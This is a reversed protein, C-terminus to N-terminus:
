RFGVHTAKNSSTQNDHKQREKQYTRTCTRCDLFILYINIQINFNHM